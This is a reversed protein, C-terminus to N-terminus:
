PIVRKRNVAIVIQTHSTAVIHEELLEAKEDTEKAVVKKETTLCQVMELVFEKDWM